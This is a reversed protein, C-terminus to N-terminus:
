WVDASLGALFEDTVTSAGDDASFPALWLQIGDARLKSRL